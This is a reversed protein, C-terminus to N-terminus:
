RAGALATVEDMVKQEDPTPALRKAIGKQQLLEHLSFLSDGIETLAARAHEKFPWDDDVDNHERLGFRVLEIVHMARELRQGITPVMSAFNPTNAPKLAGKRRTKM